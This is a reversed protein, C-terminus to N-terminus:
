LFQSPERAAQPSWTPYICSFYAMDVWLIININKNHLTKCIFHYKITFLIHKWSYKKFIMKSKHRPYGTWVRITTYETHFLWDSFPKNYIKNNVSSFDNKSKHLKGFFEQPSCTTWSYHLSNSFCRTCNKLNAIFRCQWCGM